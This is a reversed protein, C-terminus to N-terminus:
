ILEDGGKEDGHAPNDFESENKGKSKGGGGDGDSCCGGLCPCIGLLGYLTALGLLSVGAIFPMQDHWPRDFLQSFTNWSLDSGAGMYYIGVFCFWLFKGLPTSLFGFHKIFVKWELGAFIITAGFFGAYLADFLYVATFEDLEDKALPQCSYETVDEESVPVCGEFHSEWIFHCSFCLLGGVLFTLLRLM